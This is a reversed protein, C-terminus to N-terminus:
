FPECSEGCSYSVDFLSMQKIREQSEKNAIEIIKAPSINGRYFNSKGKKGYRDTMQQWWAFSSVKRLANRSLVTFAKKWCNDCNGDDVHIDLDFKQQKWWNIVWKKDVPFIDVLPLLRNRKVKRKGKKTLYRKTEEVRIGIAVEYTNNGWGVSRLYSEIAARKLQDSCFPAESCPIGLRAIMAEFPEGKRAATEYTVVKHNVAWGKGKESPYGEVWVIDIGWEQACEDIFFLTGEVEKGTNAFVIKIEYEHRQEWKNLLWWCMFASTRGGSFSILLRKM